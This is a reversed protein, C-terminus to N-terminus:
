FLKRIHFIGLVSESHPFNKFKTKLSNVLSLTYFSAYIMFSTFKKWMNRISFFLGLFDIGDKSSSCRGSLEVAIEAKQRYTEEYTKSNDRSM